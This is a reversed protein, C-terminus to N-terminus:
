VYRLTEDLGAYAEDYLAQNGMAPLLEATNKVLIRFTCPDGLGVRSTM